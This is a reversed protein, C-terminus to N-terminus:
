ATVGALLLIPLERDEHALLVFVHQGDERLWAVMEIFGLQTRDVWLDAADDDRRIRAVPEGWIASAQVIAAQFNASMEAWYREQLNPDHAEMDDNFHRSDILDFAGTDGSFLSVLRDTFNPSESM